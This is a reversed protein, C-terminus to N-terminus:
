IHRSRTLKPKQCLSLSNSHMRLVYLCSMRVAIAHGSCRGARGPAQAGHAHPRQQIGGILDLCQRHSGGHLQLSQGIPGDPTPLEGFRVQPRM